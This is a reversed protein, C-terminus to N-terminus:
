YYLGFCSEGFDCIPQGSPATLLVNQPIYAPTWEGDIPVERETEPLVGGSMSMMVGMM